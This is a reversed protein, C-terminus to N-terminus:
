FNNSLYSLHFSLYFLRLSKNKAIFTNKKRKRKSLVLFLLLPNIAIAAIFIINIIIIDITLM